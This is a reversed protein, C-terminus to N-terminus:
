SSFTSHTASWWNSPRFHWMGGIQLNLTDYATLKLTLLHRLGDIIQLAFTDGISLKFSSHTASWCNTQMWIYAIRHSLRLNNWKCYNVVTTDM